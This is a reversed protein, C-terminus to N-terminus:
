YCDYTHFLPDDFRYWYLWHYECYVSLYILVHIFTIVSYLM